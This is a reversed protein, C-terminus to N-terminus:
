KEILLRKIGNPYNEIIEINNIKTAALFSSIAWGIKETHISEASSVFFLIM